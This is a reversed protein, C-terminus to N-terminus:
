LARRGNVQALLLRIRLGIGSTLGRTVSSIHQDSAIVFSTPVGAVGFRRALVGDADSIVPYNIGAERIYAAVETESGSQMAIGIVTYDEALANITGQEIRCAPCWSASVHILFPRGALAQLDIAQGQMSTANLSPLEGRLADRTLLREALLVLIMIVLGELLLTRLWRKWNNRLAQVKVMM